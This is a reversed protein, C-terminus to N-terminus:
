QHIDCERVAFLWCCLNNFSAWTNCHTSCRYARNKMIIIKKIRTISHYLLVHAENLSQWADVSILHFILKCSEDQLYLWRNSAGTNTRSVESNHTICHQSPQTSLKTRTTYVNTQHIATIWMFFCGLNLCNSISNYEYSYECTITTFAISGAIRRM